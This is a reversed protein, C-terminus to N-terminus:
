NRIQLFDRCLNPHLRALFASSTLLFPALFQRILWHFDGRTEITPAEAIQKRIEEWEEAQTKVYAVAAAFDTGLAKNSFGAKRMAPSPSFHYRGDVERLYRIGTM